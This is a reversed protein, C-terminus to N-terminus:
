ALLFVKKAVYMFNAILEITPKISARILNLKARM